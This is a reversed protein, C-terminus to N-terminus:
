MCGVRTLQTNREGEVWQCSGDLFGYRSCWFHVKQYDRSSACLCISTLWIEWEMLFLRYLLSCAPVGFYWRNRFHRQLCSYKLVKTWSGHKSFYVMGISSQELIGGHWTESLHWLDPCLPFLQLRFIVSIDPPCHLVLVPMRPVTKIPQLRWFMWPDYSEQLCPFSYM